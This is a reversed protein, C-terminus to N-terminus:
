RPSRLRIVIEGDRLVSLSIDFDLSKMASEQIELPILKGDTPTRNEISNSALKRRWHRFGEYPLNNERCYELMSKGSGLWKKVHLKMLDYKEM